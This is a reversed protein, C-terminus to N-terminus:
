GSRRRTPNRWGDGTSPEGPEEASRRGLHDIQDRRRPLAEGTTVMLEELLENSGRGYGLLRSGSLGLVTSDVTLAHCAM